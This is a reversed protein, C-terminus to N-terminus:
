GAVDIRAAHADELIRWCEAETHARAIFTAPSEPDGTPCGACQATIRIRGLSDVEDCRSWVELHHLRPVDPVTWTEGQAFLDPEQWTDGHENMRFLDLQGATV